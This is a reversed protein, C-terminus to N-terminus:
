NKKRAKAIQRVTVIGGVTGAIIGYPLFFSVSEGMYGENIYLAGIMGLFGALAWGLLMLFVYGGKMKIGASKMVLGTIWGGIAWFIVYLPSSGMM